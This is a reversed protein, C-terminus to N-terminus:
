RVSVPIGAVVGAHVSVRSDESVITAEMRIFWWFPTKIGDEPSQRGQFLWQYGRARMACLMSSFPSIIPPPFKM